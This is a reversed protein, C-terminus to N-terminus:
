SLEELAVRIEEDTEDGPWKGMVMDNLTKGPPLPTPKRSGALVDARDALMQEPTRALSEQIAEALYDRERATGNLDTIEVHYRNPPLGNVFSAIEDPTGEVVAPLFLVTDNM